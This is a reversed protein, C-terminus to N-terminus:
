RGSGFYDRLFKTRQRTLEAKCEPVNIQALTGKDYTEAVAGCSVRVYDAWAAQSANLDSRVKQEWGVQQADGRESVVPTYQAVAQSLAQKMDAEAAELEKEACQAMEATSSAEGCHQKPTGAHSPTGLCVVAFCGVLATWNKM